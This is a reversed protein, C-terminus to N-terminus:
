PITYQARQPIRGNKPKIQLFSFHLLEVDAVPGKTESTDQSDSDAQNDPKRTGHVPECDQPFVTRSRDQSETDQNCDETEGPVPRSSVEDVPVLEDEGFPPCSPM